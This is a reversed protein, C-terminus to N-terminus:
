LYSIVLNGKDKVMCPTEGPFQNGHHIFSSPKESLRLKVFCTSIQSLFTVFFIAHFVVHKQESM